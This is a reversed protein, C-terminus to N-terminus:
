GYYVGRSMEAEEYLINGIELYPELLLRYNESNFPNVMVTITEPLSLSPNYDLRDSLFVHTNGDLEAQAVIRWGIMNTGFFFWTGRFYSEERVGVVVAEVATWENLMRDFAREERNRDMIPTVFLAFGMLVVFAVLQFLGNRLMRMLM